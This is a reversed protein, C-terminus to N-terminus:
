KTFPCLCAHTPHAVCSLFHISSPSEFVHDAWVLSMLRIAVEQGNMWHPGLNAPNSETFAEFYKWFAEAYQDDQTLHYARGLTFAWGFRAPEWLFKIDPNPFYSEPIPIKHTEYDTWHLLLEQHTFDLPVLKGFIRVKGNVIEDAEKLLTAKGDEGLTQALQDRSPLPFLPVINSLEINSDRHDFIPTLRRYHGTILGLKYFAYLALPRLGFQRLYKIAIFFGSKM